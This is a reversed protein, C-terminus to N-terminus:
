RCASAVPIQLYADVLEIKSFYTRDHLAKMFDEPKMTTAAFKRLRPNFKLRHDGCIRLTKGDSKIAIVVPTAWTSSTVLTIIGDREMKELTQLVGDRQGYPIVRQKLFTPEGDVELKAPRVNM